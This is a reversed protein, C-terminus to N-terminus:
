VMPIKVNTFDANKMRDDIERYGFGREDGFISKNVDKVIQEVEATSVQQNGLTPAGMFVDIPNPKPLNVPADIIYPNAMGKLTELQKVSQTPKNRKFYIFGLYAIGAVIILGGITDKNM